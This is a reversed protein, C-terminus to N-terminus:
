LDVWFGINGCLLATGTLSPEQKEDFDLSNLYFHSLRYFEIVISYGM